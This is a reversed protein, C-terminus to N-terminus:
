VSNNKWDLTVPDSTCAVYIYASLRHSGHSEWSKSNNLNIAFSSRFRIVQIFQLIDFRIQEEVCTDTQKPDISNRNSMARDPLFKSKRDTMIPRDSTNNKIVRHTHDVCNRYRRNSMLKNVRIDLVRVSASICVNGFGSFTMLTFPTWNSKSRSFKVVM